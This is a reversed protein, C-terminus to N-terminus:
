GYLHCRLICFPTNVFPKEWFNICNGVAKRWKRSQQHMQRRSEWICKERCRGRCRERYSGMRSEGYNPLKVPNLLAKDAKKLQNSLM